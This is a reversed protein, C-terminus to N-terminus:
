AYATCRVLTTSPWQGGGLAGVESKAYFSWNPVSRGPDSDIALLFVSSFFAPADDAETFPFGFSEL